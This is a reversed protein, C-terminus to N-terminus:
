RCKEYEEYVLSNREEIWEKPIQFTTFIRDQIAKNLEKLREEKWIKKPKIGLPPKEVLIEYGKKDLMKKTYPCFADEFELIYDDKELTFDIVNNKIMAIYNKSGKIAYIIKYDKGLFCQIDKINDGTYQIAEMINKGNLIKM